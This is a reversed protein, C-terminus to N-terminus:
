YRVQMSERRGRSKRGRICSPGAKGATYLLAEQSCDQPFSGDAAGSEHRAPDYVWQGRLFCVAHHNARETLGLKIIVPPSLGVPHSLPM